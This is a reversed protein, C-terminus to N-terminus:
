QKNKNIQYYKKVGEKFKKTTRKWSPDKMQIELAIIERKHAPIESYKELGIKKFLQYHGEGEHINLANNIDYYNSM